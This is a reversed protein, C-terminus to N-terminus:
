LKPSIMYKMGEGNATSKIADNIEDLKYTKSVLKELSFENIKKQLTM